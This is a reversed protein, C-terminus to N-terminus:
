EKMKDQFGRELLEALLEGQKIEDLIAKNKIKKFLDEEIWVSIRKKGRKQQRHKFKLHAQYAREKRLQEEDSLTM